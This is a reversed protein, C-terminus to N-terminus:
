EKGHSQQNIRKKERKYARIFKDAKRKWEVDSASTEGSALVNGSNCSVLFCMEFAADIESESFKWKNEMPYKVKSEQTEEEVPHYEKSNTVVITGPTCKSLDIVGTEEEVPPSEYQEPYMIKHQRELAASIQKCFGQWNTNEGSRQVISFASRLLSNAKELEDM